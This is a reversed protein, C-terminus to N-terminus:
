FLEESNFSETRNKMMRNSIAEAQLDKTLTKEKKILEIVDDEHINYKEKIAFISELITLGDEAICKQVKKLFAKSNLKM